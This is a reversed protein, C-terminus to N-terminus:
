SDEHNSAEETALIVEEPISEAGTERIARLRLLSQTCIPLGQAESWRVCSCDVVDADCTRGGGGEGKEERRM